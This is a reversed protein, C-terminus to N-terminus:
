GGSPNFHNMTEIALEAGVEEPSTSASPARKEFGNPGAVWVAPGRPPLGQSIFQTVVTSSSLHIIRVRYIYGTASQSSSNPLVEVLYQINQKLAAAEMLQLDSRDDKGAVVSISRMIANRDVIEVGTDLLAQQFASEFADSQLRDLSAYNGGTLIRQSKEASQIQSQFDNESRSPDNQGGVSDKVSRTESQSTSVDSRRTTTEDTLERNWFVIMAPRKAAVYWHRFGETINRGPADPDPAPPPTIVAPLGPRYNTPPPDPRYQQASAALPLAVTAAAFCLGVRRM